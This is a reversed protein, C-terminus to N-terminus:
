RRRRQWFPSAPWRREDAYYARWMRVYVAYGAAIRKGYDHLATRDGGLYAVATLGARKGAALASGIGHSSLPDYAAAADGVALWDPGCMPALYESRAVAVQLPGTLAEGHAAVRQQTHTSAALLARWGEPRWSWGAALLDPDSFYATALRDNPLVASYWWGAEMAEVLTASDRLPKGAPDLMAVVAVQRDLASRCAGQQRALVARRGSADIVLDAGIRRAGAPGDAEVRWRGGAREARRFRTLRWCDAGAEVAAALLAANFAPRDLHWGPGYPERLFDHETLGGDGGWASRNAHCPLPRTALLADYLGLQQLLPTASPALTEGIPNGTGDGQELVLVPVGLRALTLATVAGAPGGGIVVVNPRFTDASTVTGSPDDRCVKEVHHLPLGAHRGKVPHGVFLASM